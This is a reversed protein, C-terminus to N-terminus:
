HPRVLQTQMVSFSVVTIFIFQDILGQCGERSEMGNKQYGVNDIRVKVDWALMLLICVTTLYSQDALVSWYSTQVQLASSMMLFSPALVLVLALM